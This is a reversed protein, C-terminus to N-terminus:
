VPIRNRLCIRQKSNHRNNLSSRYVSYRAGFVLYWIGYEAKQALVNGAV